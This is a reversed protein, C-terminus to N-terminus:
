SAATSCIAGSRWRGGGGLLRAPGARDHLHLPLRLARRRDASRSRSRSQGQALHTAPPPLLLQPRQRALRDGLRRGLRPRGMAASGGGGFGVATAVAAAGSHIRGPRLHLCREQVARRGELEPVGARDDPIVGRRGGRVASGSAAVPRPWAPPSGCCSCCRLLIATTKTDHRHRRRSRSRATPAPETPQPRARGARALAPPRRLFRPAEELSKLVERRAEDRSAPRAAAAAGPPLAVEAPDTDDLLALARYATM